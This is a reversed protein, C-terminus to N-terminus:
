IMSALCPVVYVYGNLLQNRRGQCGPCRWEGGKGFEERAEWAAKVEKYNKEAWERICKLHFTTWCYQSQHAAELMPILPSCSWTPQQPHVPSFCILCDPYPRTSLERILNSTLDGADAVNPISHNNKRRRPPPHDSGNNSVDSTLGANFKTKGFRRSSSQTPFRPPTDHESNPATPTKLTEATKPEGEVVAKGLKNNDRRNTSIPKKTDEDRRQVPPKRPKRVGRSQDDTNHPPNNLDDRSNTEDPKKRTRHKRSYQNHRISPGSADFTQQTSSTTPVTEM